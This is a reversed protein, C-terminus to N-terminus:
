GILYLSINCQGDAWVILYLSIKRHGDAWVIKYFYNNGNAM